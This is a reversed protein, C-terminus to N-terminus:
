GNRLIAFISPPNPNPAGVSHKISRELKFILYEWEGRVEDVNSQLAKLFYERPTWVPNSADLELIPDFGDTYEYRQRDLDTDAFSYATWQWKDRGTIVASVQCECIVWTKNSCKEDSDTSVISNLRLFSADRYRSRRWSKENARGLFKKDGSLDLPRKRLCFYPLHFEMQFFTRDDFQAKVMILPQFEIHTCIASRLAPAEELPVAAALAHIFGPSLDNIYILRRTVGPKADPKKEDKLRPAKLAHMLGTATLPNNYFRTGESGELNPNSRDDFWAARLTGLEGKGDEVDEFSTGCLFDGLVDIEFPSATDQLIVPLRRSSAEQFRTKKETWLNKNQLNKPTSLARPYGQGTTIEEYCPKILSKARKRRLNRGSVPMNKKYRRGTPYYAPHQPRLGIHRVKREYSSTPLRNKVEERWDGENPMKGEQPSTPARHAPNQQAFYDDLCDFMQAAPVIYAVNSAPSGAIIHGYITACNLGSVLSGCDGQTLQGNFRVTWVEQFGVGGPCRIFTPTATMRGELFNSATVVKVYRDAPETAAQRKLDTYSPLGAFIVAGSTRTYEEDIEILSFDIGPTGADTASFIVKGLKMLEDRSFTQDRSSFHSSLQSNNLGSDEIDINSGDAETEPEAERIEFEFESESESESEDLEVSPTNDQPTFVHNVTTIFYRGHMQFSAGATATRMSTEFIRCGSLRHTPNIFVDLNTDENGLLPEGQDGESGALMKIQDGKGDQLSELSTVKGFDPPKSCDGVQITPYRDLIGSEEIQVKIFRRAARQSCIFLLTPVATAKTKGIMYISWAVIPDGPESPGGLQGLIDKSLNKFMERVAGTAEWCHESGMKKKGLWLGVCDTPDFNKLVQDQGETRPFLNPNNSQRRSFINPATRFRSRSMSNM